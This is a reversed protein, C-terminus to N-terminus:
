PRCPRCPSCARRLPALTSPAPRPAPRPTNCAGPTTRARPLGCRATPSRRAPPLRCWGTSAPPRPTGSSERRSRRPGSPRSSSFSKRPSSPSSGRRPTSALDCRAQDRAAALATWSKSIDHFDCDFGFRPANLARTRAAAQAALRFDRANDIAGALICGRDLEVVLFEPELQLRFREVGGDEVHLDPVVLRLHQQAVVLHMREAREDQMGVELADRRVPLDM